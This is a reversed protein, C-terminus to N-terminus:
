SKINLKRNTGYKQESKRMQIFIVHKLYKLLASTYSNRIAVNTKCVNCSAENQKDSLSPLVTFVKSTKNNSM